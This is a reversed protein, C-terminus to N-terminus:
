CDPKIGDCCPKAQPMKSLPWLIRSHRSRSGDAACQPPQADEGAALVRATEGADGPSFSNKAVESLAEARKGGGDQTPLSTLNAGWFAKVSLSQTM